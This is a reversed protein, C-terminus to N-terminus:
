LGSPFTYAPPPVFPPGYELVIVAYPNLPIAEPAGAFRQGNVFAQVEHQGDATRDLLHTADLPQGWVHFFAGLNYTRAAPAEIHLVGSDDHTHLWSICTREIGINGPVAVPQGDAYIALHAHVHYALQEM